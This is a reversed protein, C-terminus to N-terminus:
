DNLAFATDQLWKVLLAAISQNRVLHTHNTRPYDRYAHAHQSSGSAVVSRRYDASHEIVLGDNPTEALLRQLATNKASSGWATAPGSGFELFNCGGSVSLVPVALPQEREAQCLSAVFREPDSLSLQQASVCLPHRFFPNPGTLWDSWDLLLSLYRKNGLTGANPTGLLALGRLGTWGQRRMQHAAARCVLGGMSHGVLVFGAREIVDRTSDLLNLLGEAAKDIGEYSDYNYLVSSFAHADLFTALDGLYRGHSTFGHILVIAPGNIDHVTLWHRSRWSFLANGARAPEHTDLM